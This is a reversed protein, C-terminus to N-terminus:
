AKYGREFRRRESGSDTEEESEEEYGGVDAYGEPTSYGVVTEDWDFSGTM